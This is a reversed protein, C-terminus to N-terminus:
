HPVAVEFKKEAHGHVKDRARVFVIKLRKPIVIVQSRMFPQERVHPHALERVGLVNDEADLVDWADAYHDWGTDGHRLTVHFAFKEPSIKTVRVKEIAVDGALASGLGLSLGFGLAVIKTTWSTMMVVKM